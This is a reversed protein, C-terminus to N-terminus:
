EKNEKKIEQEHGCECVCFDDEIEIWAYECGCVECKM